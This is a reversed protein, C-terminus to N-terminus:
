TGYQEHHSRIIPEGVERSDVEAGLESVDPCGDAIWRRIVEPDFRVASGLRIGSPMVGTRELRQVHRRSVNLAKAVDSTSWLSPCVDDIPRGPHISSM